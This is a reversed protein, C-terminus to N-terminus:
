QHKTELRKGDLHWQHMSIQKDLLESMRSLVELGRSLALVLEINAALEVQAEGVQLSKTLLGVNVQLQKIVQSSCVQLM